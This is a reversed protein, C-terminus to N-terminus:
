GHSKPACSEEASGRSFSSILRKAGEAGCKPCKLMKEDGGFWHFYEFKKGCKPCEYEYIPM